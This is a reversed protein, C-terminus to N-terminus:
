RTKAEYMEIIVYAVGYVAFDITGKPFIKVFVETVVEDFLDKKPSLYVWAMSIAVANKRANRAENFNNFIRTNWKEKSSDWSEPLTFIWGEKRHSIKSVLRQALRLAEKRTM